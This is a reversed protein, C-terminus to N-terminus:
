GQKLYLVVWDEAEPLSLSLSQGAGVTCTEPLWDLEDHGRRPNFVSVTYSGPELRLTTKGGEPLYFLFVAAGDSLCRTSGEAVREPSPNLTHWQSLQVFFDHLIRYGELMTMTEDGGGNIWGGSGPVSAVEGTTGYGGGMVIDWALKRRTEPARAPATRDEGWPLPYHDEYGYEENVQPKARGSDLQDQRNKVMFDYGGHEDWSQYSAFDVWESAHFRFDGHGHVSTLHNYPDLSKLFAGMTEAWADDRFLRYENALDWMVNSYAALRAVAYRYYRKEAEGGADEKGFPDTGPRYGDVYFIVSIQIGHDRAYRVVREFKRWHELDFRTVDYGPNTLPDNGNQVWPHFLFTFEKSPYVPEKWAEGSEVHIGSLSVRLRNIRYATFRDLIATISREDWGLLAYATTSNWFYPKETGAYQFHFPFDPDVRVIGPLGSEKVMKTSEQTFTEGGMTLRLRCQYTGASQPLFRIGFRSGDQADCFGDVKWVQGAEDEFEGTLEADLFPNKCEPSEVEVTFSFFNWVGIREKNTKFVAKM